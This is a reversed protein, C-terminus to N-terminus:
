RITVAKTHKSKGDKRVAAECAGFVHAHELARLRENETFREFSLRRSGRKGDDSNILPVIFEIRMILAVRKAYECSLTAKM